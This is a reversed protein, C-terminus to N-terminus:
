WLWIVKAEEGITMKKFRRIHENQLIKYKTELDRPPNHFMLGDTGIVFYTFRTIETHAKRPTLRGVVRLLTNPYVVRLSVFINDDVILGFLSPRNPLPWARAQKKLWELENELPNLLVPILRRGHPMAVIYDAPAYAYIPM